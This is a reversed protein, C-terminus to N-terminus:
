DIVPLSITLSPAIAVTPQGQVIPFTTRLVEHRHVIENISQELAAINLQGSVKLVETENYFDSNPVLQCMLWLRQQAFSLPLNESRSVTKIPPIELKEGTRIKTEIRQACEAITPSEFLYSLPIEIKFTDRLRSIVQTALLSHGGLDFFNDHNGICERGLIEAWIGALVEEVPTRLTQVVQEETVLVSKQLARVKPIQELPIQELLIQLTAEPESIIKNLLTLFHELIQRVNASDFRRQDYVCKLHLDSNVTALFTLAYKTQAGISHSESINIKLEDSELASINVPYNEFVLLSEYLPLHGPLESCQHVQGANSHEYQRLELNYNQIKNLWCWLKEQRDIKVRLPLTNIFLGITSEIGPLNAPRGSVTIGFVIDNENSYRCLLLAWIGQVITNLTLRHSKALSKLHETTTVDVYIEQKSYKIQNTSDNIPEATIGLSTPKTFDKLNKQWFEKVQVEDQQKLWAIYDKYPRVPKLQLDQGQSLAQYFSLFEQFLLPNCWGDMLIHHSTWVLQYTKEDTQFLALRMLPPQSLNFGRDRDSELYAQLQAQQELLSYERWDQQELPVAVQRLVVQLPQEQEKWVFGTRLVSHRAIINHWAQECALVNVEGQLTFTSQELHIGSNPAFLTEFLMGQQTPSLPYIAEINKKNM